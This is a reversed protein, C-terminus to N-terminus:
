EKLFHKAADTMFNVYGLNFVFMTKAKINSRKSRSKLVDGQYLSILLYRLSM